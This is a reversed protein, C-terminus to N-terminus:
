AGLLGMDDTALVCIMRRKVDSNMLVALGASAASSIAGLATNWAGPM